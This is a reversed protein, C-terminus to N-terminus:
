GWILVIKKRENEPLSLVFGLLKTKTKLDFHKLYLPVIDAKEIHDIIKKKSKEWAEKSKNFSRLFETPNGNSTYMFDITKWESEPKDPDIIVFDPSPQNEVGKEIAPKSFRKLQVGYHAQWKAALQAEDTKEKGDLPDISFREIERHIPQIQSFDVINMTNGVKGFLYANLDKILKEKKIQGHKEEYLALLNNLRDGHNHAFGPTIGEPLRITQGTRPNTFTRYRIHSKSDNIIGRRANAKEKDTFYEPQKQIDQDREKLAQKETLQRVTCQCGYGNPPFISQWIPDDTKWIRGYFAMHSDRKKEATSAIYKLYPFDAANEQIRAWQGAAFATAMNTQFIIRLRRTSGLQVPKAIGDKPDRMIQEGWWGAKMLYPKLKKAFDAYSEGKKLSETLANKTTQLLDENMMKAVSFAVAHEHLWVDYHSFGPLLTKQSLHNLAARDLLSSFVIEPQM